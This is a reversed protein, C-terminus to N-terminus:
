KARSSVGMLPSKADVGTEKKVGNPYTPEKHKFSTKGANGGPVNINGTSMDQPKQKILSSGKVTGGAGAEAVDGTDAQNLNKVTGGMDNKGAVISKTNVGNDGMKGFKDYTAGGIKDVYERMMEGPSKVKKTEEVSEEEEDDSEDVSEEEEEEEEFAMMEDKEVDNMFDDTPDGGLEASGGMDDMGGMDDGGGLKADLAAFMDKLDQLDDKVDLVMDKVDGEPEEDDMGDTGAFPSEEGDGEEDDAEGEEDDAEGAWKRAQEEEDGPAPPIDDGGEFSLEDDLINEYIERSREVVIEHFLEEAKAREDNVLYELMQEFKSRDGM